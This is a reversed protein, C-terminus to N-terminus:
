NDCKISDDIDDIVQNLEYTKTFYNTWSDKVTYVFKYDWQKFVISVGSNEDPSYWDYTRSNETVELPHASDNHNKYYDITQAEKKCYELNNSYLIEQMHVTYNWFNDKKVINNFIRLESGSSYVWEPRDIYWNGVDEKDNDVNLATIAWHSCDSLDDNVFNALSCDKLLQWLIGGLQIGQISTESLPWKDSQKIVYMDKSKDYVLKLHTIKKYKWINDWGFEVRLADIDIANSVNVKPTNWLYKDFTFFTNQWSFTVFEWDLDDWNDYNDIWIDKFFINYWKMNLSQILEIKQTSDALTKLTYIYYTTYDNFWIDMYNLDIENDSSAGSGFIFIKSYRNLNNPWYNSNDFVKKFYSSDVISSVIDSNNDWKIERNYISRNEVNQITDKYWNKNVFIHTNIQWYKPTFVGNNYVGNNFWINLDKTKLWSGVTDFWLYKGVEYMNQINDNSDKLGYYLQMNDTDGTMYVWYNIVLDSWKNLFWNPLTAVDCADSFSNSDATWKFIWSDDTWKSCWSPRGQNRSSWVLRHTGETNSKIGNIQKSLQDQFMLNYWCNKSSDYNHAPLLVVLRKQFFRKVPVVYLLWDKEDLGYVVTYQDSTNENFNWIYEPQWSCDLDVPLLNTCNNSMYSSLSSLDNITSADLGSFCPQLEKPYKIKWKILYSLEKQKMAMSSLISGNWVNAPTDPLWVLALTDKGNYDIDFAVINDKFTDNTFLYEWMLKINQYNKPVLLIPYSDVYDVIPNNGNKKSLKNFDLAKIVIPALTGKFYNYADSGKKLVGLKVLSNANLPIFTFNKVADLIWLKELIKKDEKTLNFQGYWYSIGYKSNLDAHINALLANLFDSKIANYVKRKKFLDWIKEINWTYNTSASPSNSTLYQELMWKADLSDPVELWWANSFNYWFWLFLSLLVTIFIIVKKM